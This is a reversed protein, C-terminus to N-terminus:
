RIIFSNIKIFLKSFFYPSILSPIFFKFVQLCFVSLLYGFSTLVFFPLIISKHCHATHSLLFEFNIFSCSAPPNNLLKPIFVGNVSILSPNKLTTKEPPILEWGGGKM